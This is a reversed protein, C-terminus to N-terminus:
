LYKTPPQLLERESVDAKRRRAQLRESFDLHIKTKTLQMQNFCIKVASRSNLITKDEYQARHYVNRYNTTELLLLFAAFSAGCCVTSFWVADYNMNKYHILMIFQLRHSSAVTQNRQYSSLQCIMKSFVRQVRTSVDFVGYTIKLFRKIM